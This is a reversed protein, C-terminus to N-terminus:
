SREEPVQLWVETDFTNRNVGVNLGRTFLLAPRPAPAYWCWREASPLWHALTPDLPRVLETNRIRCEPAILMRVLETGPDGWGVRGEPIVMLVAEFTGDAHRSLQSAYGIRFGPLFGNVAERLPTGLWDGNDAHYLQADGELANHVIVWPVGDPDIVPNSLLIQHHYPNLPTPGQNWPPVDPEIREAALTDGEIRSLASVEVPLELPNEDGLQRWTDGADDSCIHSAGYYRAKNALPHTNSVVLHLHGEPGVELANTMWTHDEVSARVLSRPKSWKGGAPRRCYDVFYHPLCRQRYALHLTGQHDCVLSPYTSMIGIAKGDEVPEWAAPEKDIPMRFHVFPRHHDGTLLHLTGDPEAAIAAGSHNDIRPQGVLGQGLIKGDPPDVLAWQNQRGSDIWTCVLLGKRRAIKNSMMYGTARDGGTTSLRILRRTSTNPVPQKDPEDAGSRNRLAVSVAGLGTTELFARRHFLRQSM